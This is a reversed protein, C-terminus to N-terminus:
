RPPEGQIKLGFTWSSHDNARRCVVDKAHRGAVIAAGQASRLASGGSWRASARWDGEESDESVKGGRGFSRAAAAPAGIIGGAPLGQQGSGAVRERTQACLSHRRSGAPCRTSQQRPRRASPEGKRSSALDRPHWSRATPGSAPGLRLDRVSLLDEREHLVFAQGRAVRERLQDIQERRDAQLLGLDRSKEHRLDAARSRAQQYQLTLQHPRENMAAAAGSTALAMESPASRAVSGSRKKCIINADM